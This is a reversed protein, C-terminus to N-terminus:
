FKNICKLVEADSFRLQEASFVINKTDDFPEDLDVNKAIEDYGVVNVRFGHSMFLKDTWKHRKEQLPSLPVHCSSVFTIIYLFSFFFFMSACCILRQKM